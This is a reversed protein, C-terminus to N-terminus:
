IPMDPLKGKKFLKHITYLLAQTRGVSFAPIILKGMKDICCSQIYSMLEDEGSQKIRHVRGGYTSESIIVDCAPLKDPDNLLESGNRGVDGTFVLKKSKSGEENIELVVAAAGLLHGADIFEISLEKNIAVKNYYALPKLQEITQKVDKEGYLPKPTKVKGKKSKRYEYYQIKASDLLLHGVLESTPETCIIKGSFGRKILNPINGSHDIHAHSLILLDIDMPSFPFSGDPNYHFNKQQEYDLGCDLLVKYGSKLEILHMSGTVQKAAGWFSIKM